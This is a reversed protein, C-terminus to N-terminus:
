FTIKNVIEEAVEYVSKGDTDIFFDSGDYLKKRKLITADLNREIKDIGESALLPRVVGKSKDEDKLVRKLLSDRSALLCVTKCSSKLLEKVELSLLAGGGLSLVTFKFGLYEMTLAEKLVEAEYKRFAQEGEERIITSIKEGKIKEVEDDLDIWNWGFKDKLMAAVSSKGTGPLGVIAIKSM